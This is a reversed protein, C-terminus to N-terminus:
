RVRGAASTSRGSARSARRRVDVFEDALPEAFRGMFRFYAEAAVDFSVDGVRRGGLLSTEVRESSTRDLSLRAAQQRTLRPTATLLLYEWQMTGGGEDFRDGLDALERDLAAAREPQDALSKYVAITPGYVAKFYDRFEAGNAFQDITVRRGRRGRRRDVRDGLLERVHEEKGWLPPPQAGPPPPPAYPKMTAFMQGIFGEPTWNVLGIRGGPRVVRVLEDASTQHHPAFMIGVCSM